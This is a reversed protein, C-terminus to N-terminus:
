LSTSISYYVDMNIELDSECEENQRFGFSFTPGPAVVDDPKGLEVALM